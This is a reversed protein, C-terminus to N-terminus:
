KKIIYDIYGQIIKKDEQMTHLVRNEKFIIKMDKFYLEAGDIGYYSHIVTEDREIQLFEDKGLREGSGYGEDQISLFNICSIGDPKLVRKIENIAKEIDIKKMHFISNYSYIYSISEDAFPLKRMDGKCIDLQLNNEQSFDQAKKIQAENLEIGYTKYGHEAFIALPPYSGGAGCDLVVKELNCENCYNLFRYLQTQKYLIYSM